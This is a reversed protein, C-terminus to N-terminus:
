ELPRFLIALSSISTNASLTTISLGSMVKITGVGLVLQKCGLLRRISGLMYVGVPVTSSWASLAM